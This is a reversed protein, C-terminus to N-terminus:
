GPSSAPCRHLDRGGPLQATRQRHAAGGHPGGLLRAGQPRRRHHDGHGRARVGAEAFTFTGSCNLRDPYYDPLIVFSAATTRRTSTPAPSGPSKPRISSPASPPPSRAPSSTASRSARRPARTRMVSWRSLSIDGSPARNEYFAPNGYAAVAADPAVAVNQEISFKVPSPYRGAGPRSGSSNM